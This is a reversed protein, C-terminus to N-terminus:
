DDVRHQHLAKQVAQILLELSTDSKVFYGAVEYNKRKVMDVETVSNTVVIVPIKSFLNSKELENLVAEGGMIPMIMDLLILDPVEKKIAEMAEKGDYAITTDFGAQELGESYAKIIPRDDDVLLIKKKNM